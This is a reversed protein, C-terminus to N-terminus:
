HVWNKPFHITLMIRTASLLPMGASLSHPMDKRGTNLFFKKSNPARGRKTSFAFLPTHTHVYCPRKSIFYAQVPTQNFLQKLGVGGTADARTHWRSHGHQFNQKSCVQSLNGWPFTFVLKGALVVLRTRAFLHGSVRKTGALMNLIYVKQASKPVHQKALVYPENRNIGLM